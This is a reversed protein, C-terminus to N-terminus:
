KSKKKAAKKAAKKAEKKAAKKMAKSYYSQYRKVWKSYYSSKWTKTKNKENEYTVKIVCVRVYRTDPNLNYNYTIYKQPKVPGAAYRKVKCNVGKVIRKGKSNYQYIAFVVNNVTKKSFRNIFTVTAQKTVTSINTCGVAFDDYYVQEDFTLKPVKIRIKYTKGNPLVATIVCKGTGAAKVKGSDVTAVKRNSTKWRISDTAVYEAKPKTVEYEIKAAKGRTIEYSKQALKIAEPQKTVDAAKIFYRYGASGSVLIRYRGKPLVYSVTSERDSRVKLKEQYMKIKKKKKTYLEYGVKAHKKNKGKKVSFSIEVEMKKDTQLIYEKTKGEKLKGVTEEGDIVVAPLEQTQDKKAKAADAMVPYQMMATVAFLICLLIRGASNKKM